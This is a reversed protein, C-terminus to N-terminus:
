YSSEWTRKPEDPKPAIREQFMEREDELAEHIWKNLMDHMTLGRDICYRKFRAHLSEEVHFNLQKIGKPPAM